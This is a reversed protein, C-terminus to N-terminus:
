ACSFLLDVGDGIEQRVEYTVPEHLRHPHHVIVHGRAKPLGLTALVSFYQPFTRFDATNDFRLDDLRPRPAPTEVAIRWRIATTFVDDVWTANM